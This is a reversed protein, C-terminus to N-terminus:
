GIWRVCGSGSVHYYVVEEYRGGFNEEIVAEMQKDTIGPENPDGIDGERSWCKECRFIDIYSPDGVM